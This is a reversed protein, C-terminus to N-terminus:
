KKHYPEGRLITFARYIQELLLVRALGHTLTLPSLALLLDSEKKLEEELGLPGGLIFVVEKAQAAFFKGLFSALEESTFFKGKEDLIVKFAEKPLKARIRQGEKQLIIKKNKKEKIKEEPIILVRFQTYHSIRQEYIQCGQRIFPEKIYGVALLTLRM